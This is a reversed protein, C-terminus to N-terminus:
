GNCDGKPDFEIHIHNGEYVVDYDPGLRSRLKAVKEMVKNKPPRFDLARCVYHFSGDSHNGDWTSTIIAEESGWVEAVVRLVIRMSPHLGDLRVGGVGLKILM